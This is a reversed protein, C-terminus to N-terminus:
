YPNIYLNKIAILYANLWTAPKRGPVTDYGSELKLKM